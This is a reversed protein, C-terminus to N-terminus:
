CHSSMGTLVGQTQNRGGGKEEREKEKNTSVLIEKALFLYNSKLIIFALPSESLIKSM